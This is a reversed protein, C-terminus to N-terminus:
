RLQSVFAHPPGEPCRARQHCQGQGTLALEPSLSRLPQASPWAPNSGLYGVAFHTHPSPLPRAPYGAETQGEPVSSPYPSLPPGTGPGLAQTGLQMVPPLFCSPWAQPCGPFLGEQCCETRITLGGVRMRPPQLGSDPDSGSCLCSRGRGKRDRRGKVGGPRGKGRSGGLAWSSGLFLALVGPWLGSSPQSGSGTLGWFSLVAGGCRQGPHPQRPLAQLPGRCLGRETQKSFAQPSRPGRGEGPEM